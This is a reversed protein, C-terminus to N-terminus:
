NNSLKGKAKLNQYSEYNTLYVILKENLYKQERGDHFLNIMFIDYM